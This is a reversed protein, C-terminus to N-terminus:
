EDVDGLKRTPTFRKLACFGGCVSFATYGKARLISTAMQSTDGDYCLIVIPLRKPSLGKEGKIFKTQLRTWIMHLTEPDGFLDRIAPTLSKLPSSMSQPIHEAEFDERQRLDLFRTGLTRQKVDAM